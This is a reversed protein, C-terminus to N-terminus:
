RLNIGKLKQILAVDESQVFVHDRATTQNTSPVIDLSTLRTSRQMGHSQGNGGSTEPKVNQPLKQLMDSRRQQPISTQAKNKYTNKIFGKVHTNSKYYSQMAKKQSISEKFSGISNFQSVTDMNLSDVCKFAKEGIAEQHDALFLGRFEPRQFFDKGHYQPKPKALMDIRETRNYVKPEIFTTKMSISDQALFQDNM